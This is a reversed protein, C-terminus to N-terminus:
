RESEHREVDDKDDNTFQVLDGKLLVLVRPSFQFGTQHMLVTKPAAEFAIPADDSRKVHVVIVADEVKRGEKSLTAKGSFSCPGASLISLAIINSIM